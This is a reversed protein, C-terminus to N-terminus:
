RSSEQGAESRARGSQLSTDTHTDARDVADAPSGVEPVPLRRFYVWADERDRGAAPYYRRRIGIREFRSTEYLRLAPQNSPRVELLMGHAGRELADACLWELAARGVGQGQRPAAVSLNLLHVEDPIWMLVAYAGLHMAEDEFLWCDYGSALSDSFNGRTWPFPYIEREIRIVADLDPESMPRAFWGPLPGPRM